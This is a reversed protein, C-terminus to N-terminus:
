QLTFVNDSLGTNFVASTLTIDMIVTGNMLQQVHFPVQIGSESRNDTSIHQKPFSSAPVVSEFFQNLSKSRCAASM